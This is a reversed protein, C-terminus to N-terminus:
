MHMDRVPFVYNMATSLCSSYDKPEPPNRQAVGPRKNCSSSSWSSNPQGVPGRWQWLTDVTKWCTWGADLCFRQFSQPELSMWWRSLYSIIMMDIHAERNLGSHSSFGSGGGEGWKKILRNSLRFSPIWKSVSAALYDIGKSLHAKSLWQILHEEYTVQDQKGWIVQLPATILHLHEQLAYRSKEGVLEM